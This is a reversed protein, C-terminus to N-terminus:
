AHVYTHIYMHVYMCGRTCGFLQRGSYSCVLAPVPVEYMCICNLAVGGLGRPRSPHLFLPALRVKAEPRSYRLAVHRPVKRAASHTRQSGHAAASRPPQLRSLASLASLCFPCFPCSLVQHLHALRPLYRTSCVEYACVYLMLRRRCSAQHPRNCVAQSRTGSLGTCHVCGHAESRGRHRQGQALCPSHKCTHVFYATGRNMRLVSYGVLVQCPRLIPAKHTRSSTGELYRSVGSEDTEKVVRVCVCRM